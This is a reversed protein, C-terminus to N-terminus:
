SADIWIPSSWVRERLTAPVRPDPERGLRLADYTSWRCTPNQLVRVYYFAGQTPDFEPDQWTTALEMAGTDGTPECTALDVSAGNDPCRLTTPDVKLGDACAIDQVKEHTEGDADIWGKVMQIRQLPASMWDALASVYFTPSTTDDGTPHLVGGMPVGGAAAIAVPDHEGEISEDFGSGAFFRLTIRPGSSAYVERRKMAAFIADRTNEEAWVAALGGSTNFQLNSQYPKASAGPPKVSELRRIAPSTVQGVAGVFDWEEVDGPNGNHTDTSGIMGFALPNTGLERELQLGIKLGQRAFGTEFACGTEEGPECPALVQSFACEEDTAGVGLACESAGKVQYIEALPERRKRLRWKEEDYEGGDYTYRSYVLGWSKNMNHPITLFDCDGTCTAELGRWLDIANNVDLSSIAHEPLDSGNFLINRHHKGAEPLTPSYEYAAFTTLVGPENHADALAIYRAWDTRADRECREVGGEGKGCIPWFSRDRPPRVEQQYVGAPAERDPEATPQNRSAVARLLVFAMPNATELLYCNLSEFWTLDPENCRTRLGFGEAHDTIAVFDLPRSLQMKEGGESRLAEGRAFRYADEVTVTTGFIKADFSEHTHVHTDGWYVNGKANKPQVVHPEPQPARVKSDDQLAYDAPLTDRGVRQMREYLGKGVTFWGVVVGLVLLGTIGLLVKKLM